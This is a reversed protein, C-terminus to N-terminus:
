PLDKLTRGRTIEVPAPHLAARKERGLATLIHVWLQYCVPRRGPPFAPESFSHLFDIARWDGIEALGMSDERQSTAPVNGREELVLQKDRARWIM